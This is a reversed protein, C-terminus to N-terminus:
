DVAVFMAGLGVRIILLGLDKYKGLNNFLAM